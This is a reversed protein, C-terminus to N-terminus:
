EAVLDAWSYLHFTKDDSMAVFLGLPYEDGLWVNTVDCGDSGTTALRVTKLPLHRNPDTKEGSRSFIHFRDAGQDSVVIYGEALPTKYIAIGERDRKFGSGGFVSLEENANPIDPDAHYKRIGYREDSYYVFGAADDVAIAEIEGEGERDVGSFRGFARVKRFAVNGSGDDVLRYQWLYSGSPGNKRSVIAFVAGDGPRKFIGVGMPRREEEGEFAPIGRADIRQLDPLRFVYLKKADRDTAVAIDVQEDRLQLGYEVDVNNLRQMDPSRVRRVEQGELNFAFLIGAKDTGLILSQQPDKKNIWIAPDDSDKEVTDTVAVPAVRTGGECGGFLAVAGWLVELCM